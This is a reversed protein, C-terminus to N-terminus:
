NSQHFYQLLMLCFQLLPNGCWRGVYPPLGPAGPPLWLINEDVWRWWLAPSVHDADQVAGVFSETVRQGVVGRVDALVRTGYDWSTPTNVGFVLMLLSFLLLQKLLTKWAFTMRERQVAKNRGLTYVVESAAEEEDGARVLAQERAHEALALARDVGRTHESESRQPAGAHSLRSFLSARPTMCKHLATCHLASVSFDNSESLRPTGLSKGTRDTYTSRMFNLLREDSEKNPFATHKQSYRVVKVLAELVAPAADDSDGGAGGAHSLTRGAELNTLM